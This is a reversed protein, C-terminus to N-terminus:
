ISQGDYKKLVEKNFDNKLWNWYVIKKRKNFELIFNYPLDIGNRQLNYETDTLVKCESTLFESFLYQKSSSTVIYKDHETLKPSYIISQLTTILEEDCPRCGTSVGTIFFVVTKKRIGLNKEDALYNVVESEKKFKKFPLSCGILFFIIITANIVIKM